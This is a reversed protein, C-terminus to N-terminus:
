AVRPLIGGLRAAGGPSNPPSGGLLGIRYLKGAQQAEAALPAIILSLTLVFALGILRM